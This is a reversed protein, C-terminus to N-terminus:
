PLFATQSLVSALLPCFSCSPVQLPSPRYWPWGHHCPYVAVQTAQLRPEQGCVSASPGWGTNTGSQQREAQKGSDCLQMHRSCFIIKICLM